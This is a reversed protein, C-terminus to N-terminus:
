SWVESALKSGSYGSVSGFSLGNFRRNLIEQSVQRHSILVTGMECFDVIQFVACLGRQFQLNLM